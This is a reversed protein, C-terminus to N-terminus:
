RILRGVTSEWPRMVRGPTPGLVPDTILGHRPRRHPKASLNAEILWAEGDLERVYGLYDRRDPHIARFDGKRLAPHARRLAILNRHWHWVSDRAARQEAATFGPADDKGPLWPEGGFEADADWRLPVRAHDRSGALIEAWAQETAKGSELLERYRNLSEVDRLDAIGEFDQNVAALEQGQFLFPTGRMTLQLTALLKAIATRAVPDKEAGHAVKSLMRPNDHNDLFLAIGDGPHLREQWGLWFRKLYNLDYAYDHWRTRGPMDLVDFNFVLDLQM